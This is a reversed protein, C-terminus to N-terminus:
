LAGHLRQEEVSERLGLSPQSVPLPLRHLLADKRKFTVFAAKIDEAQRDTARGFSCRDPFLEAQYLVTKPLCPGSTRIRKGRGSQLGV